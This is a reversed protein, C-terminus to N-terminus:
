KPSPWFFIAALIAVAILGCILLFKNEKKEQQRQYGADTLGSEKLRKPKM